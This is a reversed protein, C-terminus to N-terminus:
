VMILCYKDFLLSVAVIANRWFNKGVLCGRLCSAFCTGCRELFELSSQKGLTDSPIKTIKSAVNTLMDLGVMTPLLVYTDRM